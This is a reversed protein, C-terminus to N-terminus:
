SSVPAQGTSDSRTQAWAGVMPPAIVIGEESRVDALLRDALTDADVEAATAVGLREMVPVVGRVVNAWVLRPLRVGTLRSWRVRPCGLAEM